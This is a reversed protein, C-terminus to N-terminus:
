YPGVSDTRLTYDGGDMRLDIAVASDDGEQRYAYAGGGVSM